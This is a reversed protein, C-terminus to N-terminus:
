RWCARPTQLGQVPRGRRRPGRARGAVPPEHRGPGGGASATCRWRPTSGARTTRACSRARSRTTSTTPSSSTSRTGGAWTLAVVDDKVQLGHESNALYVVGVRQTPTSCSSTRCARPQQGVPLVGPRATTRDVGFGLSWALTSDGPIVLVQPRLMEALWRPGLRAGTLMERLFRAYDGATTHLSAAAGPKDPKWKEARQDHYDYGTAYNRAIAPTWVMSSHAMGLPALVRERM